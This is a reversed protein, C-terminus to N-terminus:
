NLKETDSPSVSTNKKTNKLTKVRALNLDGRIVSYSYM